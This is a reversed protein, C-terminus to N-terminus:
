IIKTKQGYLLLWIYVILNLFVSRVIMSLLRIVYRKQHLTSRNVCLQISVSDKLNVPPERKRKSQRPQPEAVPTAVLSKSIKSRRSTPRNGSAAIPTNSSLASPNPALPLVSSDLAGPNLETSTKQITLAITSENNPVHTPQLDHQAVVESPSIQLIPDKNLNREDKELPGSLISVWM